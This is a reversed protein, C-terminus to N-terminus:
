IVRPNRSIRPHLSLGLVILNFLYQFIRNVKDSINEYIESQIFKSNPNDKLILQIENGYRELRDKNQILDTILEALYFIYDSKENFKYNVNIINSQM